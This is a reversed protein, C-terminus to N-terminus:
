HRQRSKRSVTLLSTQSMICRSSVQREQSFPADTGLADVYPPAYKLILSACGNEAPEPTRRARVTLDVLGGALIEVEWSSAKDPYLSALYQKFDFSM